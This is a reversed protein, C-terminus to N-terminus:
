EANKIWYKQKVLDPLVDKLCSVVKAAADAHGLAKASKSMEKLKKSDAMIELVTRAFNGGDLDKDEIIAAAGGDQLFRANFMQHNHTAHPFPILVSPIGSVALEAVTSAGARCIVLDAWAYAKAVDDIFCLVRADEWGADTYANRAAVYDANGTQHWIEIGAAKFEDLHKLIAKNISSAGQSGGMILLKKGKTRYKKEPLDIIERRVPNGTLMTKQAPLKHQQDPMALCVKRVFRSLIKNALGPIANQEHIISPCRRLLAASVGAFSAYGGFGIVAHPKFEGLISIAETISVGMAVLAGVARLGRGLVGQVPLGAFSIGADRVWHQELGYRSGLFLIEVDKVQKKIEEAVALAPFVHGGTGGTTLIIRLM